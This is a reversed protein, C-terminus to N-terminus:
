KNEARGPEKCDDMRRTDLVVSDSQYSLNCLEMPMGVELNDLEVDMRM